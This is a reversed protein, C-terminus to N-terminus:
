SSQLKNYFHSVNILRALYKTVRSSSWYLAYPIKDEVHFGFPTQFQVALEFTLFPLNLIVWSAWLVCLVKSLHAKKKNWSGTRLALLVKVYLLGSLLACPVFSLFIKLFVGM